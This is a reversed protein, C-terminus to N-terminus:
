FLDSPALEDSLTIVSAPETTDAVEPVATNLTDIASMLKQFNEFKKAPAADGDRWALAAQRLTELKAVDNAVARANAKHMEVKAKWDATLREFESSYRQEREASRAVRAEMDRYMEHLVLGVPLELVSNLKLGFTKALGIFKRGRALHTATSDIRSATTVVAVPGAHDSNQIGRRFSHVGSTGRRANFAATDMVAEAPEPPPVTGDSRFDLVQRASTSLDATGFALARQELTMEQLVEEPIDIQCTDQHTATM